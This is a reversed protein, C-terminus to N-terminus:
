RNRTVVADWVRGGSRRVRGVVRFALGPMTHRLAAETQEARALAVRAETVEGRLEGAAAEAQKVADRAALVDARLEVYSQESPGVLRRLRAVEDRLAVVDANAEVM